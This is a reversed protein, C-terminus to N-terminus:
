GRSDGPPHCSIPVVDTRDVRRLDSWPMAWSVAEKRYELGAPTLWLGGVKVKGAAAVALPWLLVLAFLVSLSAWVPHGHGYLVVALLGSWAALFATGLVSLVVM